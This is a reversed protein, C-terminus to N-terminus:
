VHFLVGLSHLCSIFLQMSLVLSVFSESSVSSCLQLCDESLVYMCLYVAFAFPACLKVSECNSKLSTGNRARQVSVPFATDPPLERLGVAAMQASANM